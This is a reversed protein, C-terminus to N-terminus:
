FFLALKQDLAEFVGLVVEIFLLPIQAAFHVAQQASGCQRDITTAPVEQPWGAALVANRGINFSQAGVQQVCGWIVDDIRDPALGAREVLATLVHASLDVPHVSALSGGRRGVPARVAEVIVADRASM